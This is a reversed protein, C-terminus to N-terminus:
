ASPCPNTGYGAQNGFAAAIEIARRHIATRSRATAQDTILGVQGATGANNVAVDLRGFGAVTKDIAAGLRCGAGVRASRPTVLFCDQGEARPEQIITGHACM